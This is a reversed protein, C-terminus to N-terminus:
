PLGWIHQATLVVAVCGSIFSALFFVLYPLFGPGFIGRLAPQVVIENGVIKTEGPEYRNRWSDPFPKFRRWLFCAWGPRQPDEVVAKFELKPLGYVDVYTEYTLIADKRNGIGQLNEVCIYTMKKGIEVEHSPFIQGAFSPLPCRFPEPAKQELKKTRYKRYPVMFFWTLFAFSVTAIWALILAKDM